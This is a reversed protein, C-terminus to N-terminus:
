LFSQLKMLNQQTEKLSQMFQNIGVGNEELTQKLLSTKSDKLERQLSELIHSSLRSGLRYFFVVAGMAIDVPMNKMIDAYRDSGRYEEIRYRDGKKFVVPRYLVAMAKHMNDWDTLYSDLDVYEGLSLDDLKPIFGFEIEVGDTGVMSFRQTLGPKEKFLDNIHQLIFGFDSLKLKLADEYKIGCFIEIAKLNLLDADESGEEIDLVKLYRQYQELDVGRLSKPVNLEIQANM